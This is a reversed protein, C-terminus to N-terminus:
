EDSKGTHSKLLNDLTRPCPRSVIRLGGRRDVILVDGAYFMGVCKALEIRMAPPLCPNDADPFGIEVFRADLIKELNDNM